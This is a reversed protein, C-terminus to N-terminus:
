LSNAIIKVEMRYEPTGPAPNFPNGLLLLEELCANAALRDLEAWDRVKNNSM